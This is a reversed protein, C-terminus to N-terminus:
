LDAAIGPSGQMMLHVDSKAIGDQASFHVGSLLDWGTARERHFQLDRAKGDEVGIGLKM